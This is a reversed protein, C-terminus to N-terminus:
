TVVSLVGWLVVWLGLRGPSALWILLLLLSWVLWGCVEAWFIVDRGV